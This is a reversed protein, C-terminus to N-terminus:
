IPRPPSMPGATDDPGFHIINMLREWARTSAKRCADMGVQLHRCQDEFPVGRLRAMILYQDRESLLGIYGRLREMVSEEAVQTAPGPGSQVIREAEEQEIPRIPSQRRGENLRKWKMRKKLYSLFEPLTRFELANQQGLISAIASQIGDGEQQGQAQAIRRLIEMIRAWFENRLLSAHDLHLDQGCEYALGLCADSMRRGASLRAVLQTRGQGIACAHTAEGLGAARVFRGVIADVLGRETEGLDTWRGLVTALLREETSDEAVEEGRARLLEILTRGDPGLHSPEEHM